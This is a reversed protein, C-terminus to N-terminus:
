ATQIATALAKRLVSLESLLVSILKLGILDYIEVIENDDEFALTMWETSWRRLKVYYEPDDTNADTQSDVLAFARTALGALFKAVENQSASNPEQFSDPDFIIRFNTLVEQAREAIGPRQAAGDLWYLVFAVKTFHVLKAVARFQHENVKSFQDFTLWDECWRMLTAAEVVADTRTVAAKHSKFWSM